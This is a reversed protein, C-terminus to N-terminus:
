GNIPLDQTKQEGDGPAIKVSASVVTDFVQRTSDPSDAATSLWAVDRCATRAPLGTPREDSPDSIKSYIPKALSKFIVGGQDNANM